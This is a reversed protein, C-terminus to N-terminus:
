GEQKPSQRTSVALMGLAEVRSMGRERLLKMRVTTRHRTSMDFIRVDTVRAVWVEMVERRHNGCARPLTGFELNM